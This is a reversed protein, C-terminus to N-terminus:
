PERAIVNVIIEQSIAILGLGDAMGADIREKRCAVAALEDIDHGVQFHYYDDVAPGVVVAFLQVGDIIPEDVREDGLPFWLLQFLSGCEGYLGRLAIRGMWKFGPQELAGNLEFVVQQPELGDLHRGVAVM